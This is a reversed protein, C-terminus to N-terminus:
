ALRSVRAKQQKIFLDIGLSSFLLRQGVRRTFNYERHHHYLYHTSIGLRHAAAQVHLLEDQPHTAVPAALRALATVRIEELDGLFRPLEEPPLTRAATLAIELESRMQRTTVALDV